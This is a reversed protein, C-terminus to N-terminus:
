LGVINNYIRTARNLLCEYCSKLDEDVIHLSKNNKNNAQQRERVELHCWLREVAHDVTNTCGVMLKM